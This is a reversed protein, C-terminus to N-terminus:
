AATLEAGLKPMWTITAKPTEETTIVRSEKPSSMDASNSLQIKTKRLRAQCCGTRNTIVVKEIEYDQGLDIQFWELAENKTHAFNTKNGDVLNTHPFQAAYLSSATVTKGQAVNTGESFVEVEALNMWHDTGEKDRTIRV